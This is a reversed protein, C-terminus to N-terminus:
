ELLDPRCCERQNREMDEDDTYGQQTRVVHRFHEDGGRNGIVEGRIENQTIVLERGTFGDRRIVLGAYWFWERAGHVM